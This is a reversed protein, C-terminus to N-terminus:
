TAGSRFPWSNSKSIRTPGKWIQINQSELISKRLSRFNCHPWVEGDRSKEGKWSTTNFAQGGNTSWWGITRRQMLQQLLLFPAKWSVAVLYLLVMEFLLNLFLVYNIELQTTHTSLSIFPMSWSVFPCNTGSIIESHYSACLSSSSEPYIQQLKLTKLYYDEHYFFIAIHLAAKSFLAWGIKNALLLTGPPNWIFRFPNRSKM